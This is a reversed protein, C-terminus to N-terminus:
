CKRMSKSESTCKRKKVILKEKRMSENEDVSM